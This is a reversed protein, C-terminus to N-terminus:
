NEEAKNTRLLALGITCSLCKKQTCYRNYLQIMAQTQLANNAKQGAQEWQTIINNKEAGISQLLQIAAEQEQVKGQHQAYLFKVPAITNIIINEISTKGLNKVAKKSPEDDFCFHTEWYESAHIDLLDAIEKYSYSEIVKSFLHLSRHVLGAFQAIRITPFNAPRLRLFKWLHEGIPQLSYKKRLYQYEEKLRKPFEDEYEEELMGAQGFLIAEIQFLKDKHKSLVNLPISQALLLFAVGNTKFGFNMALRWYFLLSWDGASQKLQEEWEGLKEEWREAILRELWGEWVISKVEKLSGECAITKKDGVLHEYADIIERGIADKLELTAFKHPLEKADHEYVVHLILNHYAKDGDHGHKAWDSSCVHLEVNGVLMMNGMKIRAETFDPGADRNKKGSFVVTVEEGETTRLGSPRFLGYQWIFQLLVENM